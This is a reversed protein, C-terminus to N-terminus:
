CLTEAEIQVKNKTLIVRNVSGKYRQQAYDWGLNPFGVFLYVDQNLIYEEGVMHTMRGDDNHAEFQLVSRQGQGWSGLVDQDLPQVSETLPAMSVLRPARELVPQSTLEERAFFIGASSLVTGIPDNVDPNIFGWIRDGMGTRLVVQPIVNRNQLQKDHFLATRPEV